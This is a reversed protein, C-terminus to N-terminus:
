RSPRSSYGRKKDFRAEGAKPHAAEFIFHAQTRRARRFNKKGIALHWLFIAQTLLTLPQLDGEFREVAAAHANGRLGHTERLAREFGGCTVGFLPAGKAFGDPFKLGDLKHKRIHVRLDF